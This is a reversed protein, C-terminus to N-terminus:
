SVSMGLRSCAGETRGEFRWVTSGVNKVVMEALGEVGLLTGVVVGVLAGDNAAVYKGLESLAALTDKM